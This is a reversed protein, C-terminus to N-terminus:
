EVQRLSHALMNWLCIKTETEVIKNCDQDTDNDNKNNSDSYDCRSILMAMKRGDKELREQRLSQLFAKLEQLRENTETLLTSFPLTCQQSAVRRGLLRAVLALPLSKNNAAPPSTRLPSFMNVTPSQIKKPRVLDTNHYHDSKSQSQKLVYEVAAQHIGQLNQRENQRKLLLPRQQLFQQVQKWTDTNVGDEEQSLSQLMTLHCEHFTAVHPQPLQTMAPTRRTRKITASSEADEGLKRKERELHTNTNTISMTKTM